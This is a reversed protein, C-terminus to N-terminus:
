FYNRPMKKLSIGQKIYENAEKLSIVNYYKKYHKLDKEFKKKSVTIGNYFEFESDTVLHYYVVKM